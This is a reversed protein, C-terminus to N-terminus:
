LTRNLGRGARDVGVLILNNAQDHAFHFHNNQSTKISTTRAAVGYSWAACCHHAVVHGSPEFVTTPDAVDPRGVRTLSDGCDLPNFPLHSLYNKNSTVCFM